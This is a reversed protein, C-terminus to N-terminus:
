QPTNAHETNLDDQLHRACKKAFMDMRKYYRAHEQSKSNEQFLQAYLKKCSIMRILIKDRAREQLITKGSICKVSYLKFVKQTPKCIIHVVTLESDILNSVHQLEVKTLERFSQQCVFERFDEYRHM